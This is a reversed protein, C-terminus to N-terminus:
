VLGWKKEANSLDKLVEHAYPHIGGHPGGMVLQIVESGREDFEGAINTITSAALFRKIQFYRPLRRFEAVPPPDALLARAQALLERRAKMRERRGEIGWQIWPAVLSGVVGSLLGAAAPILYQALDM